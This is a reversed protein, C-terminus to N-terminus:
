GPRASAELEPRGLLAELITRAAEQGLWQEQHGVARHAQLRLPAGPGAGQLDLSHGPDQLHAVDERQLVVQGPHDGPFQAIGPRALSQQGLGHSRAGIRGPGTRLAPSLREVERVGGGELDIPPMDLRATRDMARGQFGAPLTSSAAPFSSGAQYAEVQPPRVAGAQSTKGAEGLTPASAPTVQGQHSPPLCWRQFAPGKEAPRRRM